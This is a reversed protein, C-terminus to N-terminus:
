DSGDFNPVTSKDVCRSRPSTALEGSSQKHRIPTQEDLLTPGVGREELIDTMIPVENREESM